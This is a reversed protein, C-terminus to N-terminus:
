HVDLPRGILHRVAEERLLAIDENSFGLRMGVRWLLDDEFDHLVGDVAAIRFGLTLLRGREEASVGHLIRDIVTEPNSLDPETEDITALLRETADESLGFRAALLTPLARQEVDRIRGDVRVVLVLLAAAAVHLAREETLEPGFARDILERLGSFLDM